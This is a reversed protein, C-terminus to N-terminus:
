LFIGSFKYSLYFAASLANVKYFLHKTLAKRYEPTADPLVHDPQVENDLLKLAKKLTEPDGLEAGSM